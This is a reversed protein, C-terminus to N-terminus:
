RRGKRRRVLAALEPDVILRPELSYRDSRKVLDVGRESLSQRLRTMVDPTTSAPLGIAISVLFESQKSTPRMTSMRGDGRKYRLIEGGVALASKPEEVVGLEMEGVQRAAFNRLLLEELHCPDEPIALRGRAMALAARAAQTRMTAVGLRQAMGYLLPILRERRRITKARDPHEMDLLGCNALVADVLHQIPNPPVSAGVLWEAGHSAARLERDVREELSRRRGYHETYICLIEPIPSIGLAVAMAPISGATELLECPEWQFERYDPSPEPQQNMSSPYDRARVHASTRSPATSSACVIAVTGGRKELGGGHGFGMGYASKRGHVIGGGDSM